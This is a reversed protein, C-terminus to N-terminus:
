LWKKMKKDFIGPGYTSIFIKALLPFQLWVFLGIPFGVLVVIPIIIELQGKLMIFVTSSFAVMMAAISIFLSSLGIILKNPLSKRFDEAIYRSTLIGVFMLVSTTSAFLSIADSIIFLKFLKKTLLLPVGTNQNLGGPVTFLAAFMITIILTGVVTSSQAIDKMWKEGEKLLEAHSQDFAEYPTQGVSNRHEKYAAPIISEVEKFWQLERQMQLAAGSIQQLKLQSQPSLKGALHLMNNSNKDTFSVFIYKITDLGYILSFVKEQRHAIAIHFISRDDVDSMMLLDLNRKIIEVIFEMMGRQAANIIAHNVLGQYLQEIEFTAITEAMLLLLEHAYVHALKLDYIQKIGFFKLLNSGLRLLQGAVQTTFNKMEKQDQLECTNIHVDDERSWAKPQKVKLCSYIWRQWFSFGSSSPFGSPQCSLALAANVGTREKAFALQPRHRLLDLAVDFWKNNICDKVFLAAQRENEPSLLFERTTMNCLYHTMDKHGIWCAYNLPIDGRCDQVTLLEGNKRILSQAIKSNKTYTSARHLVTRGTRDQLKLDEESMTSLFEDIMDLQGKFITFHFTTFSSDCIAATALHGQSTLLSKTPELSSEKIAKLLELIRTRSIRRAVQIQPAGQPVQPAQQPMPLQCVQALTNWADKATTMNRIQSLMIPDCSIQIAHLASLNRKRWAKFDAGDGEEQQPPESTQEVVDCLDRVLLYNQVCAKWNEYNSAGNLVQAVIASSCINHAEM